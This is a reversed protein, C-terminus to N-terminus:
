VDRALKAALGTYTSTHNSCANRRTAQSTSSSIFERLTARDIARAHPGQAATRTRSATAANRDPRGRRAGGLSASIRAILAPGSRTQRSGRCADLALCTASRLRTAPVSDTLDRQWGRRPLKAAFFALLENALGLNGEANEFDIPNVKHPMTSSGVEGPTPRSKFYGLSIYGWIDRCLDIVVTNFRALAQSYEAIWDHPEIGLDGAATLLFAPAAARQVHWSDDAECRGQL